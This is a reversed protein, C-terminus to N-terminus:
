WSAEHGQRSGATPSEASSWSAAGTAAGVAAAAHGAACSPVLKQMGAGVWGSQSTAMSPRMVDSVVAVWPCNTTRPKVSMCQHLLVAVAVSVAAPPRGCCVLAEVGRSTHIGHATTHTVAASSDLM